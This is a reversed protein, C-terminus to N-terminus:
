RKMIEYEAFSIRSRILERLRALQEESAGDKRIVYAKGNGFYIFFHKPKEIIRDIATYAVEVHGSEFMKKYDDFFHDEFFTLTMDVEGEREVTKQTYKKLRMPTLLIFVLRAICMACLFLPIADVYGTDLRSRVAFVASVVFVALVLILNTRLNKANTTKLFEFADDAGNVTRIIIPDM